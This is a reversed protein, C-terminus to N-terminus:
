EKRLDTNMDIYPKVWANRNFKVVKHFKILALIKSTYSTYSIYKTKDHLNAALKKVKEIKKGEPLVSLDNHFEHLNELYQVEVELFYGENSGKTHNKIFDENFQSTDKM